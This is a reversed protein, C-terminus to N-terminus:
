PSQKYYKPQASVFRVGRCLRAFMGLKVLLKQYRFFRYNMFNVFRHEAECGFKGFSERNMFYLKVLQHIMLLAIM